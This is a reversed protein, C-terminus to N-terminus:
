QTCTMDASELRVIDKNKPKTDKRFWMYLMKHCFNKSTGPLVSPVATYWSCKCRRIESLSIHLLIMHYHTRHSFPGFYINIQNIELSVLCAFLSKHLTCTTNSYIASVGILLFVIRLKQIDGLDIKM